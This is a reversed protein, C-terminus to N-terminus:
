GIVRHPRFALCLVFSFRTSIFFFPSCFVSGVIVGAAAAAAKGAVRFPEHNATVTKLQRYCPSAHSSSIGRLSANTMM